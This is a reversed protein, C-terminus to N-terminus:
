TSLKVACSSSEPCFASKVYEITNPLSRPHNLSSSLVPRSVNFENIDIVYVVLFAVSSKPPNGSDLAKITLNYMRIRERDLMGALRVSSYQFDTSTIM